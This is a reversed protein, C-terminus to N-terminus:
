NKTDARTSLGRVNATLHAGLRLKLDIIKQAIAGFLHNAKDRDTEGMADLALWWPKVITFRGLPVAIASYIARPLRIAGSNLSM